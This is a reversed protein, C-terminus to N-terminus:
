IPKIYQRKEHKYNFTKEILHLANGLFHAALLPFLKM